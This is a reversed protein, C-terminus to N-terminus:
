RSLIKEFYLRHFGEETAQKTQTFGRRRYWSINERMVINTYLQYRTTHRSLFAEVAQLLANGFGNGQQDPHIAINALWYGDSKELIIAYGCARGQELIMSCIDEAIHADFDARMPAPSQGIEAIYPHYAAAAIDQMQQADGALARRIDFPAIM